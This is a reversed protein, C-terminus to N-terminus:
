QKAAMWETVYTARFVVKGGLAKARERLKDIDGTEVVIGKVARGFEYGNWEITAGNVKKVPRGEAPEQEGAEPM